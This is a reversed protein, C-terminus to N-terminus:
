SCNSIKVRRDFIARKSKFLSQPALSKLNETEYIGVRDKLILNLGAALHRFNCPLIEEVFNCICVPAFM